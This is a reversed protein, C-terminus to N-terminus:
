PKGEAKAIAARADRLQKLYIDSPPDDCYTDDDEWKGGNAKLREDFYDARKAFPRLAEALEAIRADALALIRDVCACPDSPCPTDPGPTCTERLLNRVEERWDTM